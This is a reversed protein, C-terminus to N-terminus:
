LIEWPSRYTRSLLANAEADNAFNMAQPDFHVERGLRCAINGLHCLASTVHGCEINAAPESRSKVCDIFNRHHTRAQESTDSTAPDKLDYAKWGGRDVVLTGHEGYFAVAASRGEIGHTSWLRHEWVITRSGYSYNVVLTDPTEQDDNFYFKGGAASIRAPLEVGLGWRAVDLLHAGWNGLEGTGYDWFWHWNAHFRNANFPREPAPGLWLDYDVGPPPPSDKKFGIPKRRHVIWAKALNVQGLKGSRVFEVASQFHAGSRQQLGCQVVRGFKRAAAIMREGETITHSVPKEVYVDKGAQCALVTMLAHWHDPTAIVVADLSPDDLLRRFDKEWRPSRGQLEEVAQSAAPLQTEDVDCLVAVDADTFGALSAALSKGQGRVGIVGVSVREGPAAKAVTGALGVVGAMGAAVGAANKASSGLFQRRSIDRRLFEEANMGQM